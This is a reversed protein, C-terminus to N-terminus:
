KSQQIPAPAVPQQPQEPKVEQVPAAPNAKEVLAKIPDSSVTGGGGSAISRSHASYINILMITTIMFSIAVGTTLKTIFATAGAAGFVSNSSGSGFAAGLDAGKGQQLLVLGILVVCLTIHVTLVLYFM